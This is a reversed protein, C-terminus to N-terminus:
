VSSRSSAMPVAVAHNSRSSAPGEAQVMSCPMMGHPAQLKRKKLDPKSTLHWARCHPCRYPEFYGRVQKVSIRAEARSQFPRKEGCPPRVVVVPQCVVSPAKLYAPPM